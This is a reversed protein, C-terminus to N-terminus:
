SKAEDIRKNTIIQEGLENVLSANSRNRSKKKYESWIGYCAGAAQQPTKGENIKVGICMGIWDSKKDSSNPPRPM